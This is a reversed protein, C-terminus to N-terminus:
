EVLEPCDSDHIIGSDGRLEGLKENALGRVELRKEDIYKQDDNEIKETDIEIEVDIPFVVTVKVKELM